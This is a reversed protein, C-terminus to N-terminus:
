ARLQLRAPASRRRARLQRGHRGRWIIGGAEQLRGTPYLLKSGAAGADPRARLLALLADLWGTRVLTDNNLFLLFEGRAFRAAHNCAGIFGLNRPTTLLRLGRVRRLRGLAPDGSADDVVIVEVAAAPPFAAISALCRLTLWVKGYTPVIVSVVPEPSASLSLRRPVRGRLRRARLWYGLEGPLRLTLAWGLLQVPRRLRRPLVPKPVLRRLRAAFRDCARGFAFLARELRGADALGTRDPQM